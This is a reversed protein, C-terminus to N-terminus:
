GKALDSRRPPRGSPGPMFRRAAIDRVSIRLRPVEITRSSASAVTGEVVLVPTGDQSESATAVDAFVLGRLNVPLGIAAFVPARQPALRVVDARWAILALDLALLPPLLLSLSPWRPQEARASRRAAFSPTRRKQAPKPKASPECSPERLSLAALDIVPAKAGAIAPTKRPPSTDPDTEAPPTSGSTPTPSEMDAVEEDEQRSLLSEVDNRHAAAIAAFPAPDHAFWLKCCRTCRVARGATGPMALDAQYSTDCSPCTILM